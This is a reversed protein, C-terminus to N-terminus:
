SVKSTRQTADFTFKITTTLGQFSNDATAPLSTTIKLNDSAGATVSALNSLARAGLVGTTALVTQSTGGCTDPGDAVTTWTTSCSEIKLQLGNTADTTLVNATAGTPLATTLTVTNFGSTGANSLTAVREVSDGPLLGTVTTTLTGNALDINTSGATVQQDAATTSDTFGGYTGLGAVAAATGVLAASALVKGATTSISLGM